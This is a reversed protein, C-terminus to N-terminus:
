RWFNRVTQSNEILGLPKHGASQATSSLRYRPVVRFLTPGITPECVVHAYKAEAGEPTTTKRRTVKEQYM